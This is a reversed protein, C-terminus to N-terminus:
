MAVTAFQISDIEENKARASLVGLAISKAARTASQPDIGYAMAGPVDRIEAIWRGDEERELEIKLSLTM